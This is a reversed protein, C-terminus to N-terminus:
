GPIPQGGNSAPRPKGYLSKHFRDMNARPGIAILTDGAHIPELSAPNYIRKGDGRKIAVVILDFDNRINSEMLSKGAFPASEPICLEELELEVERGSVAQEMFDTITPRLINQTIRMAASAYPSVVHNAGALYLKKEVGRSSARASIFVEPNLARATVVIFVNDADRNVVSIVGRAREVGAEALSEEEMADRRIAPAGLERCRLVAQEDTDIVVVSVGNRMLEATVIQGMQGFGCIVYHDSHKGLEKRMKRRRYLELAQGDLFLNGVFAATAAVLGFGSLILLIAFVRGGETLHFPAVTTLTGITLYLAEVPSVDEVLMFGGMGLLLLCLLSLLLFAAFRLRRSLGARRM